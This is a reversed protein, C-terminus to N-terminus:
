KTENIDECLIDSIRACLCEKYTRMSQLQIDLLCKQSISLEKWEESFMFEELNRIKILLEFNEKKLKNIIEINSRM